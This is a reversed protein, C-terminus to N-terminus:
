MAAIKEEAAPYLSVLSHKVQAPERGVFCHLSLLM